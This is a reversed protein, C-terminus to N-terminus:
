EGDTTSDAPLVEEAAVKVCNEDYGKQLNFWSIVDSGTVKGIVEAAAMDIPIQGTIIKYWWEGDRGTEINKAVLYGIAEAVKDSPKRVKTTSMMTQNEM